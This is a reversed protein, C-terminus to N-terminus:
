KYVEPPLDYLGMEQSVRAMEDLLFEREARWKQDFNMVESLQLRRNKGVGKYLIAGEKLLKNLYSLPVNLFNAAEELSIEKDVTSLSVVQGSALYDVLSHLAKSVSLPLEVEEGTESVLKLAHATNGNQLSSGIIAEIKALTPKDNEIILIPQNTNQGEM